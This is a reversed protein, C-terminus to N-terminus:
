FMVAMCLVLVSICLIRLADKARKLYTKVTNESLELEEAVEKIKMKEVYVMTFVDRCRGTLEKLRAYAEEVKHFYEVAEEVSSEDHFRHSIDDLRVKRGSSRDEAKLWNLSANRVSTFLWSVPNSVSDHNEWLRIFCEQVIDKANDYPVGMGVSYIVLNNFKEDYLQRFMSLTRLHTM